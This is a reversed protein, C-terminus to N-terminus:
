SKFHWVENKRKINKIQFKKNTRNLRSYLKNYKGTNINPIEMLKPKYNNVLCGISNNYNASLLQIGNEIHPNNFFNVSIKFQKDFEKNNWSIYVKNCYGSYAPCKYFSKKKKLKFYNKIKSNIFLKKNQLNIHLINGESIIQFFDFFFGDCIINHTKLTKLKAFNFMRTQHEHTAQSVSANIYTKCNLNEYLRYCAKKNPLKVPISSLVPYIYPDSGSGSNNSGGYGSGWILLLNGDSHLYFKGLTNNDELDSLLEESNNISLNYKSTGNDDIKSFIVNNYSIDDPLLLYKITINEGVILPCYLADGNSIDVSNHIGSALCLMGNGNEMLNKFKNKSEQLINQNNVIINNIEAQITSDLNLQITNTAAMICRICLTIIGMDEKLPPNIRGQKAVIFAAIISNKIEQETSFSTISDFQSIANNFNIQPLTDGCIKNRDEETASPKIPPIVLPGTFWKVQPIIQSGNPNDLLFGNNDVPYNNLMKTASSFINNMNTVSVTDWISIDQNFSSNLLFMNAMTIVKSVNWNTIDQNFSWAGKFMESMYEVNEVNWATYTIGNITVEKTSIDQNFSFANNFMSTMYKVNSVNWNGINQNFATNGYFMDAMITVNAVDWATYTTGNKTVEKTSIDQNFPNPNNLNRFMHNMNTVKSVNWDGIYQNFGSNYFMYKMSTVNGVDWNGIDQNFITAGWFMSDMNTVGSVNWNAIDENFNTYNKFLEHMSGSYGTLDLNSIHIEETSGNPIASWNNTSANLIFNVLDNRNTISM